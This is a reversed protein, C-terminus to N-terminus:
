TRASALRQESTSRRGLQGAEAAWEQGDGMIGAARHRRELMAHRDEPRPRLLWAAALGLGAIAAFTAVPHIQAELFLSTKRSSVPLSSHEAGDERPAYLNDRRERRGPEDSKQMPEMTAEMGFDVLRPFLRGMMALAWGGFGVVLDRSPHACA